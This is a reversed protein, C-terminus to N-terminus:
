SNPDYILIEDGDGGLRQQALKQFIIDVIGYIAEYQNASGSTGRSTASRLALRDKCLRELNYWICCVLYLRQSGFDILREFLWVDLCAATRAVPIHSIM